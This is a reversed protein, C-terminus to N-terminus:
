SSAAWRDAFVYQEAPAPASENRARWFLIVRCCVLLLTKQLVQQIYLQALAHVAREGHKEALEKLRRAHEDTWTDFVDVHTKLVAVHPGVADALTLMDEATDVDAAVSLNTRKRAM